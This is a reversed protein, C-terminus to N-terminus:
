FMCVHLVEALSTPYPLTPLSVLLGKDWKAFAAHALVTWASPFTVWILLLSMLFSFKGVVPLETPGPM